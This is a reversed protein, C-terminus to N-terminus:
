GTPSRNAARCLDGELSSGWRATGRGVCLLNRHAGRIQATRRRPVGRYDSEAGCLPAPRGQRGPRTQCGDAAPRHVSAAPADADAFHADRLLLSRGPVSLPPPREQDIATECPQFASALARRMNRLWGRGCHQYRRHFVQQSSCRYCISPKQPTFIPAPQPALAWLPQATKPSWLRCALIAM